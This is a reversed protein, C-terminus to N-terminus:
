KDNKVLKTMEPFLTEISKNKYKQNPTFDLGAKVYYYITKIKERELQNIIRLYEVESLKNIVEILVAGHQYSAFDYINILSLEIVSKREGNMAENILDCYSKGDVDISDFLHTDLQFGLVDSCNNTRCSFASLMIIVCVVKKTIKM